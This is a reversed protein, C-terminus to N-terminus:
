RYFWSVDMTESLMESVGTLLDVTTNISSAIEQVEEAARDAEEKAMLSLREAMEVNRIVEELGASLNQAGMFRRRLELLLENAETIILNGAITSENALSLSAQSRNLLRSAELNLERSRTLSEFASTNLTTFNSRLIELFSNSENLSSGVSSVRSELIAVDQRRSTLDLGDLSISLIAALARSAEMVAVPVDRTANDLSERVVESLAELPLVDAELGDLATQVLVQLSRTNQLRQLALTANELVLAM